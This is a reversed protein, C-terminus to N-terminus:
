CALYRRVWDRGFRTLKFFDEQVRAGKATQWVFRKMHAVRPTSFRLLILGKEINPISALVGDNHMDFKQRLTRAAVFQVDGGCEHLRRM